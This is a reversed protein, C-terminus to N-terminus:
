DARKARTRPSTPRRNKKAYEPGLWSLPVVWIGTERKVAGPVKGQRCKRQITEEKVHLLHAAVRAQYFTESTNM